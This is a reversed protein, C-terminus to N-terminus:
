RAAKRDIKAFHSDLKDALMEEAKGCVVQLRYKKDRKM